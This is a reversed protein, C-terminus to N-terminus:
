GSNIRQAPPRPTSRRRYAAAADFYRGQKRAFYGIWDLAPGVEVHRPGYAKQIAPPYRGSARSLLSSPNVAIICAADGLVIGQM